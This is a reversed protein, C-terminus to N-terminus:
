ATSAHGVGRVYERTVTYNTERGRLCDRIEIERGSDYTTSIISSSLLM